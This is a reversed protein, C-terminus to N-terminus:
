GNHAEFRIGEDGDWINRHDFEGTLIEPPIQKFASCSFPRIYHICDACQGYRPNGKRQEALQENLPPLESFPDTM